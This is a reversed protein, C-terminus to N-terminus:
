CTWRNPSSGWGDHIQQTVEEDEKLRVDKMWREVADLASRRAKDLAASAEKAKTSHHDRVSKQERNRWFETLVQHPVWLRDRLKTLVALSDQRTRENSRYLNLLVNTDLVVM